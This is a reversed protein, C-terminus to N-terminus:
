QTIVFSSVNHKQKIEQSGARAEDKTRFSGVLVTYLSRGDKVKTVVEVPYGLGQFLQRQREANQIATFAGVQLVYREQAPVPMAREPQGTVALTDSQPPFGAPSAKASDKEEPFSETRNGSLKGLYASSPYDSQLQKLKLEATRYLGLSYYFQYVKYLADDAWESKPFNDVVSQYIRVAETGDETLLAQLYLVGPDNPHESLLSPVEGRVLDAQGNEVMSVLRKIDPESEQALSLSVLLISLVVLLSGARM